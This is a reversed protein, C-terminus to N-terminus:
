SAAAIEQSPTALIARVCRSRNLGHSSSASHTTKTHNGDSAGQLALMDSHQKLAREVPQSKVPIRKTESELHMRKAPLLLGAHIARVSELVKTVSNGCRSSRDTRCSISITRWCSILGRDRAPRAPIARCRASSVARPCIRSTSNAGRAAQSSWGGPWPRHSGSWGCRMAFWSTPRSKRPRPRM